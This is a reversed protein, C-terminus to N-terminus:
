TLLGLQAAEIICLLIVAIWLPARNMAHAITVGIAVLLLLTIAGVTLDM